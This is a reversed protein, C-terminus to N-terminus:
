APEASETKGPVGIDTESQQEIRDIRRDECQRHIEDQGQHIEEPGLGLLVLHAAGEAAAHRRGQDLLQGFVGLFQPEAALHLVHGQQEAVHPKVLM